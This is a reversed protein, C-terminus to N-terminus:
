FASNPQTPLPPVITNKLALPRNKIFLLYTNQNRLFTYSEFDFTRIILGNNLAAPWYIDPLVQCLDLVIWQTAFSWLIWMRPIFFLLWWYKKKQVLSQYIIIIVFSQRYFLALSGLRGTQTLQQFWLTTPVSGVAVGSGLKFLLDKNILSCWSSQPRWGWWPWSCWPCGWSWSCKLCM